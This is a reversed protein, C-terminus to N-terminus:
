TLHPQRFDAVLVTTTVPLFTNDTQDFALLVQREAFMAPHGIKDHVRVTERGTHRHALHELEDGGLCSHQVANEFVARRKLRIRQWANFATQQALTEVRGAFLNQVGSDGSFRQLGEYEGSRHVVLLQLM